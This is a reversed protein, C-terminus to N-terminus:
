SAEQGDDGVIPVVIIASREDSLVTISKQRFGGAIGVEQVTGSIPRTCVAFTTGPPSGAEIKGSTILACEDADDTTIDTWYWGHNLTLDFFVNPFGGCDQSDSIQSVDHKQSIVSFGSKVAVLGFSFEDVLQQAALSLAFQFTIDPAYRYEIDTKNVIMGASTGGLGNPGCSVLAAGVTAVLPGGGWSTVTDVSPSPASGDYWAQGSSTTPCAVSGWSVTVDIWASSIVERAELGMIGELRFKNLLDWCAGIQNFTEADLVTNMMPGHGRGIHDGGFADFCLDEFLYDFPRSGGGCINNVSSVGNVCGECFVKLKIEHKLLEDITIRTDTADWVGPQRTSAKRALSTFFFRPIISGYPNDPLFQIDSLAAADGVKWSGNIGTAVWLMYERLANDTTRYPEARLAAIEGDSWAGANRTITAPAGADRQFPAKFVLKVVDNGGADFEVTASALEYPAEYIQCSKCFDDTVGGSNAFYTWGSPVEPSLHLRFDGGALPDVIDALHALETPMARPYTCCRSGFVFWDAYSDLKWLSTPSPHYFHTEVSGVWENSWGNIPADARIGEYELLIADGKASFDKVEAVAVFRQLHGFTVGGYTITGGTHSRVIYEVGEIIKEVPRYSPAIGQFQDAKQHITGIAYRIFRLVPRGQADTEYSLFGKRNVVRMMDNMVRRMSDFVPNPNVANGITRIGAAATNVICGLTAYDTYIQTAADADIGSGDLFSGEDENGGRTAALRLLLYADWAGSNQDPKYEILENAEFSIDGSGGVFVIPTALRVSIPDPKIADHFYKIAMPADPSLMLRAFVKAGNLIELTVSNELNTAKAFIGSLVFGDAYTHSDQGTNFPIITGAPLNPIKSLRALPYAPSLGTGDESGINPALHYQGSWFEEASFAIKEIDFTDPDRQWDTGRFDKVFAWVARGFHDGDYRFLKGEETYPGEIWDKKLLIDFANVGGALVFVVFFAPGRRIDQVHGDAADDTWAPCTGAYTIVSRGGVTSVSGHNAPVTVDDRLATFKIEYSPIGGGTDATSGCNSLLQVPAPFAGGWSKGNPSILNNYSLFQASQAAQIAPCNQEGTEPDIVGRQLKALEWWEELDRPPGDIRNWLFVSPDSIRDEESGFGIEPIGFVFANSPPQYNAGEPEGPGSVPWSGIDNKPDLTAYFENLEGMAPINGFEDPMRVQRGWNVWYQCLRYHGDGLGSRHQVNAREAM